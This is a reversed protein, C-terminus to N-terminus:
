ESAVGCPGQGHAALDKEARRLYAAANDEPPVPKRALDAISAPDGADRIAQLRNGLAVSSRWVFIANALLLVAILGGLVIATWKLIKKFMTSAKRSSSGNGSTSSIVLFEVVNAVIISSDYDRSALKRAPARSSDCM